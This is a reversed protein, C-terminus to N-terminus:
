WELFLIDKHAEIIKPLNLTQGESYDQWALFSTLTEDAQELDRRAEVSKDIISATIECLPEALSINHCLLKLQTMLAKNIQLGEIRFESVQPLSRFNEIEQSLQTIREDKTKSKQENIAKLKALAESLEKQKQVASSDIRQKEKLFQENM